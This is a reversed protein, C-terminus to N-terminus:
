KIKIVNDVDDCSVNLEISDIADKMSDSVQFVLVAEQSEGPKVSTELNGLDEMLITLMPKAAKSGNCVIRYDLAKDIMSVDVMNETVNAVQFRLVLLEYGDSADLYIYEGEEDTAPYQETILYDDYTITVGQIGAIKAIDSETGAVQETSQGENEAQETEDSLAETTVEESQEESTLDETTQEDLEVIEKEGEDVRDEYNVDYKLLLGAAYEAIMSSQEDSLDIVENCGTLVLCCLVFSVVYRIKKWMVNGRNMENQM